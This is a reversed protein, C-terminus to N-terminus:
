LAITVVGSLKSASFEETDTLQSKGRLENLLSRRPVETHAEEHGHVDHLTSLLTTLERAPNAHQFGNWLSKPTANRSGHHGVKYVNVKTLRKVTAPDSLAFQWNEWQADGPFLLAQGKVELLLIVSTNNMADDLSRVISLLSEARDVRMQYRFWRASPPIAGAARHRLPPEAETSAASGATLAQRRWYAARLMWFEDKQTATQKRIKDSQQLTPPGLVSVKVGPLVKELGSASGHHVYYNAKGAMTMLNQVADKNAINDMGLAALRAGASGFSTGRFGAAEAHIGEAVQSMSALSARLTKNQAVQTPAKAGTKAKPDETWPQIVVDPKLNRIVEGSGKGKRRAFGSVHDRHRHTAIVADLKGGCDAEIQRAVKLMYANTDGRGPPLAMTGFDVLVHRARRAYQFSLLYCDGFGVQYSRITLQKPATAM